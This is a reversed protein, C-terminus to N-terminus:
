LCFFPRLSFSDAPLFSVPLLPWHLHDASRQVQYRSTLLAINLMQYGYLSHLDRSSCLYLECKRKAEGLSMLKGVGRARAEYSCTALLGKQRIGVPKGCLSPDRLRECGVYFNDLDLAIIVRPISAAM